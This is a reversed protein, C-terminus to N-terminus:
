LYCGIALQGEERTRLTTDEFIADYTFLAAAANANSAALAANLQQATRNMNSATTKGM